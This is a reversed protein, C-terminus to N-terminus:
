ATLEEDMRGKGGILGIRHEETGVGIAERPQNPLPQRTHYRAADEIDAGTTASASKMGSRENLVTDPWAHPQAVHVVERQAITAYIRDQVVKRGNGDNVAIQKFSDVSVEIQDDGIGRIQDILSM